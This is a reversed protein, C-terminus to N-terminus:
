RAQDPNRVPIGGSRRGRRDRPRHGVSRGLSICPICHSLMPNGPICDPFASESLFRLVKAVGGITPMQSLPRLAYRTPTARFSPLIASFGQVMPMPPTGGPAFTRPFPLDSPRYAPNQGRAPSPWEEPVGTASRRARGVRAAVRFCRQRNGPTGGRNPRAGPPTQRAAQTAALATREKRATEGKGNRALGRRRDTRQPM